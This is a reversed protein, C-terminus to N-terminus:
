GTEYNSCEQTVETARNENQGSASSRSIQHAASTLIPVYSHAVSVLTGPNASVVNIKADLQRALTQVISTGLGAKASAYNSM